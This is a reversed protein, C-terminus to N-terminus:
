AIGSRAFRMVIPEDRVVSRAGRNDLVTGMMVGRENRLETRLRRRMEQSPEIGRILAFRALGLPTRDAYLAGCDRMLRLIRRDDPSAKPYPTGRAELAARNIGVVDGLADVFADLRRSEAADLLVRSAEDLARRDLHVSAGPDVGDGLLDNRRAKELEAATDRPVRPFHFVFVWEDERDQPEVQYRRLARPIRDSGTSTDICLLGGRDFGWLELAYSPPLGVARALALSDELPVDAAWATARAAGLGILPDAGVGMFKVTAIELEITASPRTSHCSVFREVYPFADHARPGTLLFQDSYFAFLLSQPRQL